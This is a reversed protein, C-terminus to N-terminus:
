MSTNFIPEKAMFYDCEAGKWAECRVIVVVLTRTGYAKRMVAGHCQHNKKQRACTADLSHVRHVGHGSANGIGRHMEVDQHIKGIHHM